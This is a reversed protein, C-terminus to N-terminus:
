RVVASLRGTEATAPLCRTQVRVIADHGHYDYPTVRGALGDAAPLGDAALEIQEPRILVTVQGAPGLTTAACDLPLNGLLTKVVAGNLVGELLNADGVFRAM